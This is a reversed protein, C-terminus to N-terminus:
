NGFRRRRQAYEALAKDLESENFDPWLTDTFYLEAYDSRYLMFGSTRHEGSTRVLLDIDPIEPHYISADLMTRDIKDVAVGRSVIQKVADVLEDKGGYNFCLALTGKTNKSTTREAEQLAKLVNKDLGQQRGLVVVRIGAKDFTSLHKSVAKAVLKMLYGVEEETRKWNEASFVYASVYKTGRAFAALVTDKLVEAGKRHGELTALGRSKAWRRNGDLIIGLHNPVVIEAM